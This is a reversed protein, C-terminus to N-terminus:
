PLSALIYGGLPPGFLMLICFLRMIASGPRPFAGSGAPRPTCARARASLCARRAGSGCERPM